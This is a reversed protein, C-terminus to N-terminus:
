RGSKRDMRTEVSHVHERRPTTRPEGPVNSPPTNLEKLLMDLENLNKSVKAEGQTNEVRESKETKLYQGPEQIQPKDQHYTITEVVRSTGDDTGRQGGIYGPSKRDSTTKSYKYDYVETKYSKIQHGAM